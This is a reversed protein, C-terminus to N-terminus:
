GHTLSPITLHSLTYMGWVAVSKKWEEFAKECGEKVLQGLEELLGQQREMLLQQHEHFITRKIL